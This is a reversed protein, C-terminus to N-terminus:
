DGEHQSPAPPGLLSRVIRPKIGLEGAELM